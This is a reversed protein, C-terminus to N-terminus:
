LVCPEVGDQGPTKPLHGLALVGRVPMYVGTPQGVHKGVVRQAM